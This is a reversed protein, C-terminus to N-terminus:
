RRDVEQAQSAEYNAYVEHQINDPDRFAILNGTVSPTIESHTVGLRAFHEKWAELEARNKVAFAVHDMGTRFESFADGSARAGHGTLGFSVGSGPHVMVVKTYGDREFEKVKTFGLVEMYWATSRAVDTVTVSLHHYGTIQPRVRQHRDQTLDPSTTTM